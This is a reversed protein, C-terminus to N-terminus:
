GTKVEDETTTTCSVAEEEADDFVGENGDKQESAATGATDQPKSVTGSKTPLVKSRPPAKESGRGKSSSSSRGKVTAAKAARESGSEDRSKRSKTSESDHSRQRSRKKSAPKKSVSEVASSGEDALDQFARQSSAAAARQNMNAMEAMQQNMNVAAAAAMFPNQMGLGAASATINPVAMMNPSAAGYMLPWGMGSHQRQMMTLENLTPQGQFPVQPMYNGLFRNPVFQMLQPQNTARSTELYQAVAAADQMDQIHSRAAASSLAASPTQRPGSAVVATSKSSKPEPRATSSSIMHQTSDSFGGVRVRPEDPVSVTAKQGRRPGGRQAEWVFGLDNLLKIRDM